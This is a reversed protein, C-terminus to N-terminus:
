LGLIEVSGDLLQKFDTYDEIEKYDFHQSISWLVDKDWGKLRKLRENYAIGTKCDKTWQALRTTTMTGNNYASIHKSLKTGIVDAEPMTSKFKKLSSAIQDVHAKSPDKLINRTMYVTIGNVKFRNGEGDKIITYGYNEIKKLAVSYDVIFEYRELLISPEPLYLDGTRSNVIVTKVTNSHDPIESKTWEKIEDKLNQGDDQDYRIFTKNSVYFEGNLESLRNKTVDLILKTFKITSDSKVIKTDFEPYHRLRYKLDRLLGKDTDVSRMMPQVNYGSISYTLDSLYKQLQEGKYKAKDKDINYIFVNLGIQDAIKQANELYKKKVNFVSTDSRFSNINNIIQFKSKIEQYKPNVTKVTDLKSVEVTRNEIRFIDVKYDYEELFAKTREPTISVTDTQANAFFTTFTVVSFIVIGKKFFNMMIQNDILSALIQELM